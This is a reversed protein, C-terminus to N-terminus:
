RPRSPSDGGGDREPSLRIEERRIQMETWSTTSEARTHYDALRITTGGREESPNQRNGPTPDSM